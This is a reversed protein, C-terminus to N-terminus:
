AKEPYVNFGAPNVYNGEGYNSCSTCTTSRDVQVKQRVHYAESHLGLSLLMDM